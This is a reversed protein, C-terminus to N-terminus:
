YTQIALELEIPQYEGDDFASEQLRSELKVVRVESGEAGALGELRGIRQGLKWRVQHVGSEADEVGSRCGIFKWRSHAFHKTTVARSAIGSTQPDGAQQIAERFPFVYPCPPLELLLYLPHVANTHKFRNIQFRRKQL